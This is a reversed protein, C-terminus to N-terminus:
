HINKVAETIPAAGSSLDLAKGFTKEEKMVGIVVRAVDERPITTLPAKGLAVKGTVPEDALGSIRVATWDLKESRKYLGEEAAVKAKM